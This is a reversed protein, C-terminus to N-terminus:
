CRSWFLARERWNQFRRQIPAFGPAELKRARDLQENLSTRCAVALATASAFWLALAIFWFSQSYEAFVGFFQDSTFALRM